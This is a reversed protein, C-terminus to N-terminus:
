NRPFSEFQYLQTCWSGVIGTGIRPIYWMLVLWILPMMIHPKRHMSNSTRTIWFIRFYTPLPTLLKMKHNQLTL